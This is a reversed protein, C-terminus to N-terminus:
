PWWAWIKLRVWDILKRTWTWILLRQDVTTKAVGEMGPRLSEDVELLEAEVRFYNRGERAETVPTIKRIKYRLPDNPLSSVLLNGEQGVQVDAIETEDFELIVSYADLPAIIFLEEGRQVAAGISQSLDGSVVIGDFPAALKTRAIQEDLLATQAEAQEIQAKIINIDARDRAALARSYETMRQKRTTSWRLRELVLDKDDLTALVQDAHVKEGARANEKAVYGDFPAVIARQVLGELTAPSTVRYDGEVVSFVAVLAVMALTALKRGVYHPGFLRKVQTWASDGLKVLILRDNRRKEELLPGVVSVVCDSLEVTAQDFAAGRPREFTMAGLMRQGLGIPVTLIPGADHGRALEGHARAVFYGGGEPPPHLILCEQDIAEDMAAGIDRVLNMRRGFQAAHSLAVVAAHGRRLFGISVQDCELRTALEVAVANCAARFGEHELATAVLDLAATTRELHNQEDQARERHLLVEIWGGGWRLQRLIARLQSSTKGSVEIAVVGYLRGEIVFPYALTCDHPTSGAQEGEEGQVISRRESLATEAATSLRPSVSEEDPWFAAPTFPGQDPEGLVLVGSTTGTILRCQLALWSSLFDESTRAGAFRKWLAQDLFSVQGSARPEPKPAHRLGSPSGEGKSSM